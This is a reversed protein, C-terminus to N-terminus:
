GVPAQGGNTIMPQSQATSNNSTSTGLNEHDPINVEDLLEGGRLPVAAAGSGPFFCIMRGDKFKLVTKYPGEGEADLSVCVTLVADGKANGKFYLKVRAATYVDIDGVLRGEPKSTYRMAM